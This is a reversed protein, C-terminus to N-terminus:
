GEMKGIEKSTKGWVFLFLAQSVIARLFETDDESIQKRDLLIFAAYGRLLKTTRVVVHDGSVFMVKRQAFLDEATESFVDAGTGFSEEVQKTRFNIFRLAFRETRAFVMIAEMVADFVKRRKEETFEGAEPLGLAINKLIELQRNIEGIYSYSNVLDKSVENVERQFRNKAAVHKQTQKEQWSFLVFAVLGILIIALSEAHEERLLPYDRVLIEPILVIALFLLIYALRLLM